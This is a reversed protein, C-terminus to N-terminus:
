SELDLEMQNADIMFKCAWNLFQYENYTGHVPFAGKVGGRVGQQGTLHITSRVYRNARKAADLFSPDGVEKYLLLWCAASQASGTLCAWPVKAKWAQDLRGPLFGNPQLASALGRATTVAAELLRSERSYRYGEIIGRLAYAITHTLPAAPNSLCCNAYWGCANQQSLAWHINALAARAHTDNQTVRAAELLGWAVHTEFARDAETDVFPNPYRWCGDADQVSVLWDAARTLNQGYKTDFTVTAAALGQLIQGTDFTVMAKIKAGATSGQFGGEPFQISTLWDVARKARIKLYEDGRKVAQEILTPIIYGTTEPYSPGWGTTLSYHRAIGGDQYVSFDQADALWGLGARIAAEPGPDDGRGAIQDRLREM